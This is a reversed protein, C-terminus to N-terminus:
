AHNQLQEVDMGAGGGSLSDSEAGNYQHHYQVQQQQQKLVFPVSPVSPLKERYKLLGFGNDSAGADVENVISPRRKGVTVGAVAAAM